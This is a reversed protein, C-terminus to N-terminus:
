NFIFYISPSNSNETSSGSSRSSRPPQFLGRLTAGEDPLWQLPTSHLVAAVPLISPHLPLSSMGFFCPCGSARRCLPIIHQWGWRPPSPPQCFKIVAFSSKSPAHACFCCCFLALLFERAASFYFFFFVLFINCCHPSFYLLRPAFLPPGAIENQKITQNRSRTTVLTWHM